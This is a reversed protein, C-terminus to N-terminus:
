EAGYGICVSRRLGGLRMGADRRRERLGRAVSGDDGAM